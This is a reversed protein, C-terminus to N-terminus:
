GEQIRLKSAGIRAIMHIQIIRSQLYIKRFNRAHFLSITYSIRFYDVHVVLGIESVSQVVM